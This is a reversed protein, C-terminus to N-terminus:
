GLGLSKRPPNPEDIECVVDRIGGCYCKWHPTVELVELIAPAGACRSTAGRVETKSYGTEEMVRGKRAEQAELAIKVGTTSVVYVCRVYRHGRLVESGEATDHRTAPEGRLFVCFSHVHLFLSKLVM